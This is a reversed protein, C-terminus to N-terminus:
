KLLELKKPFSGQEMFEELLRIFLEKEKDSSFISSTFLPHNVTKKEFQRKRSIYYHLSCHNKICHTKRKFFLTDYKFTFDKKPFHREYSITSETKNFSIRKYWILHQFKFYLIFLITFLITALFSIFGQTNYSLITILFPLGVLLYFYIKINAIRHQTHDLIILEKSVYIVGLSKYIDFIFKSGEKENNKTIM